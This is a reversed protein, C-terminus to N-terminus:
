GGRQVSSVKCAGSWCIETASNRSSVTSEPSHPGPSTPPRSGDRALRGEAGDKGLRSSMPERDEGDMSSSIPEGTNAAPTFHSDPGRAGPAVRSWVKSTSMAAESKEASKGKEEGLMISARRVPSRGENDWGGEETGLLADREVGM